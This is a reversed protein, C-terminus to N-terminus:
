EIKLPLANKYTENLSYVAGRVNLKIHVPDVTVLMPRASELGFGFLKPPVFVTEFKMAGEAVWTGNKLM